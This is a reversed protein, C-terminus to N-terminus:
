VEQLSCTFTVLLCSKSRRAEIVTLTNSANKVERHDQLDFSQCDAISNKLMTRDRSRMSERLKELAMQQSLGTWHLIVSRARRVNVFYCFFGFPLLKEDGRSQMQSSFTTIRAEMSFFLSNLMMQQKIFQKNILSSTGDHYRRWGDKNAVRYPRPTQLMYFYFRRKDIIEKNSISIIRSFQLLLFLHASAVM